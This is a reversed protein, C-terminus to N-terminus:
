IDFLYQDRMAEERRKQEEEEMRLKKEKDQEENSKNNAQFSLFEDLEKLFSVM